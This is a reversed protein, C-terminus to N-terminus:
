ASLEALIGGRNLGKCLLWQLNSADAFRSRLKALYTNAELENSFIAFGTPGWSSQGYCVAGQMALYKLAEAVHPSAYRGGQVPAFYDGTKEQLERIAAGFALLDHEALAPLAQML